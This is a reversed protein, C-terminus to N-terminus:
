GNLLGVHLCFRALMLWIRHYKHSAETYGCVLFLPNTHLQIIHYYGVGHRFHAKNCNDINYKVM